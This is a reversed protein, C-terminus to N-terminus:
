KEVGALRVVAIGNCNKSNLCYDALSTPQVMVKKGASSAHIFTLVGNSRYAIGVHSFDLGITKTGFFVIDGDRFNKQRVTIQEKPLIFYGMRSNLKKECAQISDKDSPDNKLAPYLHANASMFNITKQEKVGGLSQSINKWISKRENEFIWDSSYHLRSPYGDIVGNRYRLAQLVSQYHRFSKDSSKMLLSLAVCNEVFTTCDFERLNIVLQEDGNQELTGGVYPRNLFYFATQIVLENVPLHAVPSITKVYDEFILSDAKTGGAYALLSSGLFCLVFAFVFTHKKVSDM